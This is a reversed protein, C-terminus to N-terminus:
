GTEPCLRIGSGDDSPQAVRGSGADARLVRRAADDRHHQRGGCQRGATSLLPAWDRQEARGAPRRFLLGAREPRYNELDKFANTFVAKQELLAQTSSSLDVNKQQLDDAQAQLDNLRNGLYYITGGLLACFLFSLLGLIMIKNDKM